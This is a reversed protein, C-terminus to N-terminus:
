RAVTPSPRGWSPVCRSSRESPRPPSGPPVVFAASPVALERVRAQGFVRRVIPLWEALFGDGEQGSDMPYLLEWPVVDHEGLVTFSRIRDAEEWFQRRVAQPM